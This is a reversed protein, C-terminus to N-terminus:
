QNKYEGFVAMILDIVTEIKQELIKFTAGFSDLNDLAHHDKLELVLDNEIIKRLKDRITAM